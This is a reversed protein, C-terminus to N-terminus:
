KANGSGTSGINKSSSSVMGDRCTPPRVDTCDEGFSLADETEAGDNTGDKADEKAIPVLEATKAAVAVLLALLTSFM